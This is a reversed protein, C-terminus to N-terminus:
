VEFGHRKEWIKGLKTKIEREVSVLIGCLYVLKMLLIRNNCHTILCPKLYRVSLSHNVGSATLRAASM